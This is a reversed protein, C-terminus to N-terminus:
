IAESTSIGSKKDATMGLMDEIAKLQYDKAKALYPLFHLFSRYETSYDEPIPEFFKAVSIGLFTAIKEAVSLPVDNTGDEIKAISSSTKYGLYEAMEKQTKEAEIRYFRVKRGFDDKM